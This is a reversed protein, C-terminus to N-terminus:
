SWRLVRGTSSLLQVLVLKANATICKQSSAAVAVLAARRCHGFVLHVPLSRRQLQQFEGEQRKKEKRWGKGRAKERGCACVYIWSDGHGQRHRSLYRGEAGEEVNRGLATSRYGTGGHQVPLNVIEIGRGFSVDLSTWILGSGIKQSRAM